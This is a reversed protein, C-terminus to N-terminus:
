VRMAVSAASTATAAASVEIVTSTAAAPTTVKTIPPAAAAAATAAATTAIVIVIVVPHEVQQPEVKAGAHTTPQVRKEGGPPLAQTTLAGGQQHWLEGQARWGSKRGPRVGWAIELSDGLQRGGLLGRSSCDRRRPCQPVSRHPPWARGRTASEAVKVM